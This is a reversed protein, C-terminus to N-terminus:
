GLGPLQGTGGQLVFYITTWMFYITTWMLREEEVTLMRDKAISQNFSGKRLRRRRRPVGRM